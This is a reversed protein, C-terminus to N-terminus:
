CSSSLQTQRCVLEQSVSKALLIMKPSIGRLSASRVGCTLSLTAGDRAQLPLFILPETRSGCTLPPTDGRRNGGAILRRDGSLRRM